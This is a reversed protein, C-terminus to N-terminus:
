YIQLPFHRVQEYSREEDHVDSGSGDEDGGDERGQRGRKKKRKDYSTVPLNRLPGGVEKKKRRRRGKREGDGGGDSEDDESASPLYAKNDLSMRNRKHTQSTSARKAAREMRQVEEEEEAYDYSESNINQPVLTAETTQRSSVDEPDQSRQRMIFTAAPAMARKTFDALADFPSKARGNPAIAEGSRENEIDSNRSNTSGVRSTPKSRAGTRGPPVALRRQSASHAQQEYEVSTSRPLNARSNSWSSTTSMTTQITYSSAAQHFASAINVSTDKLTADTPQPPTTIIGPGLSSGPRNTLAHNRQKLENYRSSLDNDEDQATGEARNVQSRRSRPSASPSGSKSPSRPEFNPARCPSTHCFSRTFPHPFMTPPSVCGYAYSAPPNIPARRPPSQVTTTTTQSAGKLFTQHDLRRGQGLPTGSFSM